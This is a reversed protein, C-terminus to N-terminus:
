PGRLRGPPRKPWRQDAQVARATRGWCRSFRAPTLEASIRPTAAALVIADYPAPASLGEAGDGVLAAGVPELLEATTKATM